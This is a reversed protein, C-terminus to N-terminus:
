LNLLEYSTVIYKVFDLRNYMQTSVIHFTSFCMSDM